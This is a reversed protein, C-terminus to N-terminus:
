YSRMHKTFKFKFLGTTNDPINAIFSLAVSPKRWIIVSSRLSQDSQQKIHSVKRTKRQKNKKKQAFKTNLSNKWM